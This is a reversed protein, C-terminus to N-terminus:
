CSASHLTSDRPEHQRATSGRLEERPFGLAASGQGESAAAPLKRDPRLKNWEPPVGPVELNVTSIGWRGPKSTSRVLTWRSARGNILPSLM